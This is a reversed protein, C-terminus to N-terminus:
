VSSVCQGQNKYRDEGDETEYNQWGGNECQEQTTAVLHQWSCRMDWGSRDTVQEVNGGDAADMTYVDLDTTLTNRGSTWAIREGDTSWTPFADFAQFPGGDANDTLQRVNTGDADMRYIELNGSRASQFVIESGDPSYRPGSDQGSVNTLQELNSGDPDMAYIDFDGDRNSNFVIRDGQPSWNPQANFADDDTLKVQESGDANMRYIDFDSGDERPEQTSHFAIEDGSPSWTAGRDEPPGNHTLRTVNDGDNDMVYAESNDNERFSEFALKGGGPAWVPYGDRVDNDTLFTLNKGDPEVVYVEEDGNEEGECALLGNGDSPSDQTGSAIPMPALSVAVLVALVVCFAATLVCTNQWTSPKTAVKSLIGRDFDHFTRHQELNQTPHSPADRDDGDAQIEEDAM